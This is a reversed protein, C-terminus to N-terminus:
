DLVIIDPQKMASAKRGDGGGGGGAGGGRTRRTTGSQPSKPAWGGLPKAAAAVAAATRSRAAGKGKGKGVGANRAVKKAKPAVLSVEKESAQVGNMLDEPFKAEILDDSEMEQREPTDNPNLKDGDFRFVCENAREPPIGVKATFGEMFASFKIETTTSVTFMKGGEVRVKITIPPGSAGGGDGGGGGGGTVDLRLVAGEAPIGAQRLTKSGDLKKEKYFLAIEAEEEEDRSVLDLESRCADEVYDVGKGWSTHFVHRQRKNRQVTFKVRQKDLGQERRAATEAKMAALTESASAAAAGQAASGSRTRSGGPDVIKTADALKKQMRRTYERDKKNANSPGSGGGDSELLADVSAQARAQIEEHTLVKRRKPAPATLGDEDDSCLLSDINVERAADGGGSAASRRGGVWRRAPSSNFASGMEDDDSDSDESSAGGEGRGKGEEDSDQDSDDSDSKDVRRKFEGRQPFKFLLEDGSSSSDSNDDRAKAASDESSSM